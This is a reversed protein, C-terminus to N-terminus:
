KANAVGQGNRRADMANLEHRIKAVAQRDYLRLTGARAAPLIHRRTSLVYLVRQLSAGLEDAIKGPTLLFPVAPTRM